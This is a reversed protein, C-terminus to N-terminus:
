EHRLRAREVCSKHNLNGEEGIETDGQEVDHLTVEQICFECIM